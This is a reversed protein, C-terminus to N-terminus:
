ALERLAAAAPTEGADVRGGPLAWQGGHARLGRARRTLLFAAEHPADGNLLAIAVAAPQLARTTAAPLRAFSACLRAVDRRLGDNFPFTIVATDLGHGGCRGRGAASIM